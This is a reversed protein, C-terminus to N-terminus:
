EQRGDSNIICSHLKAIDPTGLYWIYCSVFSYCVAFGLMGTFALRLANRINVGKGLMISVLLRNLIFLPSWEQKGASFITAHNKIIISLYM